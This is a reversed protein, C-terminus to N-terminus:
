RDAEAGHVDAAEGGRALELREREEVDAQLHQRAAVPSGREHQLARRCGGGLSRGQAAHSASGQGALKGDHRGTVCRGRPPSPDDEAADGAPDRRGARGCRSNGLRARLEGRGAGAGPPQQRARRVDPGALGGVPADRAPRGRRAPPPHENNLPGAVGAFLYFTVYLAAVLLFSAGTAMGGLALAMLATVLAATRPGSGVVAAARPAGASGLSTGVFALTVLVGYAGSAKEEGGLLTAFQVPAVIELGSLAFGFAATAALVLRITRDSGALRLGNAVTSPVDRVIQRVRAHAGSPPEIMLFWVAILGLSQLAAAALYPVSLPILPGDAPLGDALSPLLGGVVAGTALAAAEASWGRSIGRRVDAEPDAARVADVYWAELPGSQLARALGGLAMVLGFQVVDTAVAMGLLSAINLIRSLILTRRRGLVDAFSGTPLELVIVVLTYVAFLGGIVPLEIGRARLQLM